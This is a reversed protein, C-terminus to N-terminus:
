QEFYTTFRRRRFKWGEEGRVFDDDYAGCLLRRGPGPSLAALTSRGTATDKSIEFVKNAVL